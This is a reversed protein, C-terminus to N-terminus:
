TLNKKKQRSYRCSITLFICSFPHSSHGLISTYQCTYFFLKSTLTTSITGPHFSPPKPSSNPQSFDSPRRMDIRRFDFLSVRNKPRPLVFVCTWRPLLWSSASVTPSHESLHSIPPYTEHLAPRLTPVTMSFEVLQFIQSAKM